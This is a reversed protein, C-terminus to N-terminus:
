KQSSRARRLLAAAAEVRALLGAPDPRGPKPAFRPDNLAGAVVAELAPLARVEKRRALAEAAAALVEADPHSALPLLMEDAAPGFADTLRILVLMTAPEGTESRLAERLFGLTEPALASVLDNKRFEVAAIAAARADGAAPFYSALALLRRVSAADPSRALATLARRASALDPGAPRPGFARAAAELPAPDDCGLRTLAILTEDAVPRPLGPQALAACFTRRPAAPPVDLAALGQAAAQRADADQEPDLLVGSLPEFAAPDHLKSLFTVAFFRTKAPLKPDRAADGLPAAARWGLPALEKFLLEAGRDLKAVDRADKGNEQAVLADVRAMVRAVGAKPEAALAPAALALALAAAIM